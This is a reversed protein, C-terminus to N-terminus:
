YCLLLKLEEVWSQGRNITEELSGADELFGEGKWYRIMRDVDIDYDEPFLGCFLFGPRLDPRLCEYSIKISQYVKSMGEVDSPASKKLQSLANNWVEPNRVGRLARGLTIIALPLGGCEKLVEKATTYVTPLDVVDGAKEKFLKWSEGSSLLDVKINVQTEMNRCVLERRTTIIIKCGVMDNVCPIGVDALDLAMIVRDFDKRGQMQNNVNKVLTTKGIGGMGWVGIIKIKEDRLADMVKKMALEASAQGKILPAEQNIVPPPPLAITLTDFKGQDRHRAIIEAKEKAQKSIHYRWRLNPCCLCEKNEGVRQQIGQAEELIDFARQQWLIVEQTAIEGSSCGARVKEQIDNRKAVLDEVKDKLDKVNDRFHILCTVQAKLPRWLYKGIDVLTSSLVEMALGNVAVAQSNIKWHVAVTGMFSTPTFIAM